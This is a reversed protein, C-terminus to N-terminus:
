QLRLLGRAYLDFIGFFFRLFAALDGPSSVTPPHAHDKSLSSLAIQHRELNRLRSGRGRPLLGGQGPSLVYELSYKSKTNIFLHALDADAM